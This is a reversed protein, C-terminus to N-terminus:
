PLSVQTEANLFTVQKRVNTMDYDQVGKRDGVIVVCWDTLNALQYSLVTPEFITTM